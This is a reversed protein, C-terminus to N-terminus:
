IKQLAHRSDDLVTDNSKTPIRNKNVILLKGKIQRTQFFFSLNKGWNVKKQM